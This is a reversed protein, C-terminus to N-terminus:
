QQVGIIKIDNLIDEMDIDYMRSLKGWRTLNGFCDKINLHECIPDCKEYRVLYLFDKRGQLIDGGKGDKSLSAFIKNGQSDLMDSFHIAATTVDIYCYNRENAEMTYEPEFDFLMIDQILSKGIVYGDSDIMKARYIPLATM